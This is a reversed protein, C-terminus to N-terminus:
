RAFAPTPHKHSTYETRIVEDKEWVKYKSVPIARGSKVRTVKGTLPNVTEYVKAKHTTTFLDEKAKVDRLKKRVYFARGKRNNIRDSTGPRYRNLLNAFLNM